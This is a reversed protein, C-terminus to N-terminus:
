RLGDVRDDYPTKRVEEDAKEKDTRAKETKTITDTQVADIVKTEGSAEGKNYQNNLVWAVVGAIMLLALALAGYKVLPKAFWSALLEM